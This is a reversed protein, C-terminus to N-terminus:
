YVVHTPATVPGSSTTTAAAPAVVRRRHRVRRRTVTSRQGPMGYAQGTRRVKTADIADSGGDFTAGAPLLTNTVEQGAVPTTRLDLRARDIGKEKVLYDAANLVRQAAADAREGAAHSGVMVLKASPDHNLSIAIEDLCAKAANDVRNPRRTDVTFSLPCLQNAM